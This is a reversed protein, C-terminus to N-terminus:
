RRRRRPCRARHAAPGPTRRPPRRCPGAGRGRMATSRASTPCGTAPGPAGMVRVAEACQGALAARGVSAVHGLSARDPGRDGPGGRAVSVGPGHAVAHRDKTYAERTIGVVAADPADGLGEVGEGTREGVEGVDGGEVDGFEAVGLAVLGRGQGADEGAEGAAPDGACPVLLAVALAPVERGGPLQGRAGVLRACADDGPAAGAAEGEGEVGGGARAGPSPGLAAEEDGVDPAARGAGLVQPLLVAEDFASDVGRSTHVNLPGDGVAGAEVM